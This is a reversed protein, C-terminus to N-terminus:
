YCVTQKDGLTQKWWVKSVPITVVPSGLAECQALNPSLEVRCEAMDQGVLAPGKWKRSLDSNLILDSVNRCHDTM